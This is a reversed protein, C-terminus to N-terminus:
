EGEAQSLAAAATKDQTILRELRKYVLHTLINVHASQDEADTVEYIGRLLLTGGSQAGLVENFHYGEVSIKVLGADDVNFVFNGLDDITETAITNSTATGDQNLRSVIVSSGIGFPGKEASGKVDFGTGVIGDGDSTTCATILLILLINIIGLATNKM